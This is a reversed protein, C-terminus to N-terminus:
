VKLNAGAAGNPIAFLAAGQKASRARLLEDLDSEPATPVGDVWLRVSTDGLNADNSDHNMTRLRIQICGERLIAALGGARPREQAKGCSRGRTWTSRSMAGRQRSLSM